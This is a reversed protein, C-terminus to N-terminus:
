LWTWAGSIPSWAAQFGTPHTCLCGKVSQCCNAKRLAEWMRQALYSPPGEVQLVGVSEGTRCRALGGQAVESKPYHGRRTEEEGELVYCAKNLYLECVM